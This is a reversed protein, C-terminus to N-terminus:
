RAARYPRLFARHTGIHSSLPPFIFPFFDSDACTKEYPINVPHYPKVPVNEAKGGFPVPPIKHLIVSKEIHHGERM